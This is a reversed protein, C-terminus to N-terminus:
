VAAPTRRARRVAAGAIGTALLGTLVITGPEPVNTVTITATGNLLAADLVNGSTDVTDNFTAGPTDTATLNVVGNSLGTFTFTGLLLRGDGGPAVGAGPPIKSERLFADYTGGPNANRSQFNFQGAGLNGAIDTTNLVNAAGLNDSTIGVGASVLNPVPTSDTTILYVRISLTTSVGYDLTFASQAVGTTANAFQYQYAADAPRCTGFLALAALAFFLRTRM